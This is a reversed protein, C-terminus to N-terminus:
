AVQQKLSVIGFSVLQFCFPLLSGQLMFLACCAHQSKISSTSKQVAALNSNKWVFMKQVTKALFSFKISLLNLELYKNASISICIITM